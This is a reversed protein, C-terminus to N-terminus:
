AYVDELAEEPAPLPSEEAFKVAEDIEKAVEQEVKDADKETLAEMEVLKKRFRPIPDKKKCEEVEEKTRYTMTDGEFHGHHR